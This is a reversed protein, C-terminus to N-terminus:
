QGVLSATTLTFTMLTQGQNTWTITSPVKEGAQEIWDFFSTEITQGQEESISKDILGTTSNLYYLRWRSLPRKQEDLEPDDVRVVNWLPGSYNDAAYDPRVNRAVVYYSAGRLQALIFQDASDFILRELVTRDALSLTGSSSLTGLSADWSFTTAGAVFVIEVREGTACSSRVVQVEHRADGINLVGRVILAPRLKSKFRQGGLRRSFKLAEPQLAFVPSVTVNERKGDPSQLPMGKAVANGKALTQETEAPSGALSVAYAGLVAAVFTASFIGIITYSRSM